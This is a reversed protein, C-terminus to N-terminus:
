QTPVGRTYRLVQVKGRPQLDNFPHQWLFDAQLGDNLEFWKGVTKAFLRRVQAFFSDGATSQPEIWLMTAVHNYLRSRVQEFSSSFQDFHKSADGSFAAVLVLHEECDATHAFWRDVIRATTELDAADWDETHWSARIGQEDLWSLANRLMRNYLDLAHHSYDGATIAVDLPLCGVLKAKRLFAFIALLGLIGGGTGCPIDLVAIRGGSFTKLIDSSIEGLLNEPNLVM